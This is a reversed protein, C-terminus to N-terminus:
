VTKGLGELGRNYGTSLAARVGRFHPRQGDVVGLGLGLGLGLGDHLPLERDDSECCVFGQAARPEVCSCAFSSCCCFCWCRMSFSCLVAAFRSSLRALRVSLTFLFADALRVSTSTFIDSSASARCALTPEQTSSVNAPTPKLISTTQLDNTLLPKSGV